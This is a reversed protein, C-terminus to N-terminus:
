TKSSKQDFDFPRIPNAPNGKYPTDAKPGSPDGSQHPSPKTFKPIPGPKLDHQKTYSPM